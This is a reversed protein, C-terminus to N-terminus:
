LGGLLSLLANQNLGASFMGLNAGLNQGVQENQLLAGLLGLNLQGSGLRDRIDLERGGLSTQAGLGERRLAADTDIGYRQLALRDQDSLLQGGMALSTMLDRAQRDGLGQVLSGEFAGERQARNQMLGLLQSDFAGSDSWGERAAMEALSRRAREEARQEALQNATIAPAIEPNQANVPAPSLRNLLAQQFAGAVTAPHGQAPQAGVTAPNTLAQGATQPAPTSAAQAPAAGAPAATASAQAQQALPHNAPVWGGNIFVGGGISAFPDPTTPTQASPATASAPTPQNPQALPHSAPIWGGNYQVGGGISAFPDPTAM